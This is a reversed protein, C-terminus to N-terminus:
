FALLLQLPDPPRVKRPRGSIFRVKPMGVLARIAALLAHTKTSVAELNDGLLKLVKGFGAVKRLHDTAFVYALICLTFINELRRFTRM